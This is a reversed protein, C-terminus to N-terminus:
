TGLPSIKWAKAINKLFEYVEQREKETLDGYSNSLLSQEMSELIEENTMFINVFIARDLIAKIQNNQRPIENLLMIIKGDFELKPTLAVKSNSSIYHIIRQGNTSYGNGKLLIQIKKEGLSYEVDDLILFKPPALKTTQWLTLYFEMPTIYGNVYKFAKPYQEMAKLIMTTKGYGPPSIVVLFNDNNTALM